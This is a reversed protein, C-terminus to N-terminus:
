RRGGAGAGGGGGAARVLELDDKTQLVGKPLYGQLAAAHEMLLKRRAEEVVRARYDEKAKERRAFELEEQRQIEFLRNMEQKQSEVSNMYEVKAQARRRAAEREMREDEDYKVKLMRRQEEEEEREKQARWEKLQTQAANADMM